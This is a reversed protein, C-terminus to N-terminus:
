PLTITEVLRVPVPHAAEEGATKEVALVKVALQNADLSIRLFNKFHPHGLAAFAENRHLGFLNLGLFLYLGFVAGGAIGSGLFQSALNGSTLEWAKFGAASQALGHVLGWAFSPGAKWGLVTFSAFILILGAISGGHHLPFTLTDVLAILLSMWFCTFPFLLLRFSLAFSKCQEPYCQTCQFAKSGDNLKFRHTPHLFAGGGGAVLKVQRYPPNTSSAGEYRQYNHVDGALMLPVRANREHIRNQFWDITTFRDERPKQQGYTWEPEPLCLIVRSENTLQAAQDRFFRMQPVDLDEHLQVDAAWIEWNHPLRLAFYTRRQSTRFIGFRRGSCFRRTFSALSDYWDHNGPILFVQSLDQKELGLNRAAQNFPWILRKAYQMKSAVPYVEDGGLILVNPRPLADHSGEPTIAASSLLYAMTYTSDWGDGTDAMYDFSFNEQGSYDFVVGQNGSELAAIRRADIMGGLETSRLTKLGTSILQSPALWDTMRPKTWDNPM